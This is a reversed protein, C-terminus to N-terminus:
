NASDLVFCFVDQKRIFPTELLEGQGVVYGGWNAAGDGWHARKIRTVAQDHPDRIATKGNVTLIPGDIHMGDSSDDFEFRLTNATRVISPSVPFSYVKAAGGELEGVHEGNFLVRVNRQPAAPKKHSHGATSITLMAEAGLGALSADNVVTLERSRTEGTLSSRIQLNVLGDELLTSNLVTEFVARYFPRGLEEMKGWSEGGLSWELIEDERPQVVHARVLAQGQLPAGIRHSLIAVRQGLGKHFHEMKDNVVRYILYGQPNLDPALGDCKANWWCGALAGGTRYPVAHRKESVIHSDGTLQFRVDHAAAMELFGPCELSLDNESATIVFTGAGRGAMDERMWAQHMPQIELTPYELENIQRQGLHYSSDASMFHIKGYEFSFFNPGLYEWYLPKGCRHDGRPFDDMRYVSDTHDGAVNYHPMDLHNMIGVYNRMFQHGSDVSSVLAKHLSILDGSNVVFRPKPTLANLETVFSRLGALSVRSNSLHTDTVHIFIYEDEDEPAKELAFDVRASMPKYWSGVVDFGAPRTVYVFVADPNPVLSYAGDGDTKVVSYGDTVSVDAAGQAAAGTNALAVRGEVVAPPPTGYTPKPTDPLLLPLEADAAVVAVFTGAWILLAVTASSKLCPRGARQGNRWAQTEHKLM